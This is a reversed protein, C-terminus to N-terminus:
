QDHEDTEEDRQIAEHVEDMVDHMDVCEGCLGNRDVVDGCVRCKSM